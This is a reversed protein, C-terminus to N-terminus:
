GRRQSFAAIFRTMDSHSGLGARRIAPAVFQKHHREKAWWNGITVVDVSAFNNNSGLTM